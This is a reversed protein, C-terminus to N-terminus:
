GLGLMEDLSLVHGDYKPKPPDLIDRAADRIATEMTPGIGPRSFGGAYGGMKRNEQEQVAPHDRDTYLSCAWSGNSRNGLHWVIWGAKRLQAVLADLTTM